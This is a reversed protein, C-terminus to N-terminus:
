NADPQPPPAGCMTALIVLVKTNDTPDVNVKELNEYLLSTVEKLPKEYLCAFVANKVREPVEDSQIASVIVSLTRFAQQGEKESPLSVATQAFGATAMTLATAAFIAVPFLRKAM